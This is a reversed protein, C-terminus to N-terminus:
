FRGGTLFHASLWALFTLLAFRRLQGFRGNSNVSFWAWVHGSLTDKTHGRFLSLGEEILFWGIWVLWGITYADM